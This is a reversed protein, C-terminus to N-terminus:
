ETPTSLVEPTCEILFLGGCEFARKDPPIGPLVFQRKGRVKQKVFENFPSFYFRERQLYAPSFDDTRVLM